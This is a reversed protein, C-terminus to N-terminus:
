IERRLVLNRDRARQDDNSDFYVLLIRMGMGYYSGEIELLDRNEIKAKKFKIEPIKNM